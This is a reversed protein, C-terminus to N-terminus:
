EEDSQSQPLLTARTLSTVGFRARIQSTVDQVRRRRKVEPDEFLTRQAPTSVLDTVGVGCLRIARDEWGFRPLLTKAVSFITDADTVPERFQQRRTQIRFATDKLKVVVTYGVVADDRLRQAVRLSQALLHPHLGALGSIDEVFTEEASVSKAAADPVVPRTDEGRALAGVTVGFSGMLLQLTKPDAHALQGLTQLGARRLKGAAVKGVGWMREVPLPALFARTQAAPVVTLGDPKELDSAIKAVFKCSAVGASARLQTTAFIDGKIRRAVTVGDGFLSTSGTVDLFAEDLSLGEILPTYKAFIAFVQASVASYVAHRVPAVAAHPCRRLAEAMPMASHIGFQRAEYSAAAVVGRQMGGVLTPKGRLAPNDRQEVSAYFADMDIHLIQREM